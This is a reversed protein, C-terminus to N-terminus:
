NGPLKRSSQRPVAAGWPEVGESMRDDPALPLATGGPLNDDEDPLRVEGAITTADATRRTLATLDLHGSRDTKSLGYRTMQAAPFKRCPVSHVTLRNPYADSGM